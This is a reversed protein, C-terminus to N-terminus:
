VRCLPGELSQRPSHAVVVKRLKPTRRTLTGARSSLARLAAQDGAIHSCGHGLLQQSRAAKGLLPEVEEKGAHCVCTTIVHLRSDLFKEYFRGATSARLSIARSLERSRPRRRPRRGRPGARQLAEPEAEKRRRRGRSTPAPSLAAPLRGSAQAARRRGRVHTRHRPDNGPICLVDGKTAIDGELADRHARPAAATGHATVLSSDLKQLM